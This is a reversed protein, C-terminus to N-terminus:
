NLLRSYWSSSPKHDGIVRREGPKPRVMGYTITSGSPEILQAELLAKNREIRIKARFIAVQWVFYCCLAILILFKFLEPM